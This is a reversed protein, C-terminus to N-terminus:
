ATIMRKARRSLFGGGLACLALPLALLWLVLALGSPPTPPRSSATVLPITSPASLADDFDTSAFEGADFDTDVDIDLPPLTADTVTPAPAPAIAIPPPPTVPGSPTAPGPSSPAAPAPPKFEPALSEFPKEFTESVWTLKITFGSNQGLFNIVTILYDGKPKFLFAQEPEGGTAASAIWPDDASDPKAGRKKAEKETPPDTYIYSDMDNVARGEPELVPDPPLKQSDWSLLYQVFYEDDETISDPVEITLPIVDCYASTSCTAPDQAENAPNNGIIGDFKIELVEDQRLVIRDRTMAGAEPAALTLWTAISALVLSLCATTRTFTRLEM